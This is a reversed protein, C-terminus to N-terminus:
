RYEILRSQYSRLDDVNLEVHSGDFWNSIQKQNIGFGNFLINRKNQYEIFFYINYLIRLVYGKQQQLLGDYLDSVLSERTFGYKNCMFRFESLELDTLKRYEDNGRGNFIFGKRNIYIQSTKGGALYSTSDVSYWPYRDMLSFTTMGFGHFKHNPYKSFISDLWMALENTPIPVMGGLAVYDYKSVYYDLYEFSEGYHFCPIPKLDQNEMYEQNEKTREPSGIVDLVSYNKVNNDKIFAIYDNIDIDIHQTFASYAGSDLFFNDAKDIIHKINKYKKIYFYSELMNIKVNKLIKDFNFGETGAFYIIL